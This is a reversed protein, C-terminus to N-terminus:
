HVVRVTPYSYERGIMARAGLYTDRMRQTLSDIDVNGTEDCPVVVGRGHTYLSGFILEHSNKEQDRPQVFTHTEM